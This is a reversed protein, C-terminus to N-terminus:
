ISPHYKPNKNITPNVTKAVLPTDVRSTQVQRKWHVGQYAWTPSPITQLLACLLFVLCSQTVCGGDDDISGSRSWTSPIRGDGVIRRGEEVGNNNGNKVGWRQM